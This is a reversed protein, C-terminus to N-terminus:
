DQWLHLPMCPQWGSKLPQPEAWPRAASPPCHQAPQMLPSCPPLPQPPSHWTTPQMLCWWSRMSVLQAGAPPSCTRLCLACCCSSSIQLLAALTPSFLGLLPQRFLLALWGHTSWQCPMAGWCGQKSSCVVHRLATCDWRDDLVESMKSLLVDAASSHGCLGNGNGNAVAAASTGDVDMASSVGGAAAAAAAVLQAAIPFAGAATSPDDLLPLLAPLLLDQM